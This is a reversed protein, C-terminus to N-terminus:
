GVFTPERIGADVADLEWRGAANLAHIQGSRVAVNLAMPGGPSAALSVGRDFLTDVPPEFGALDTAGDAPVLVLRTTTATPRTMVAVTTPDRWGLRVPHRLGPTPTLEIPRTLGVPRGSGDRAVRFVRLRFGSAEDQAVVLRSGDRSLAAARVAGGRLPWRQLVRDRGPHTVVVRSGEATRDVLWLNGLHDWLPRLVDTGVYASRVDREETRGLVLVRSGQRGVMAFQQSAMDVGLWRAPGWSAAVPKPIRTALVQEEGVVQVVKRGQLGFLDRSATAVAPDLSGFADVDVVAGGEPLEVPNGDVTIQFAEVDPLQGLTWGLQAAALGLDEEDLDLVQESLPVRAVGDPGVPVGVDLKTGEPFYSREVLGARPVPGALLGSVLQTPAQVGRPLYVREPVLVTGSPDLFYLSYTDYRSEFHSRPVVMADPPDEIRWEGGDETVRFPLRGEDWRGLWRGRRDLEFADQIRLEVSSGASSIQRSGYVITRLEPQWVDAAQTTLFEEAVQTSVPTAQLASLFGDVIEDPSAGPRPGSPNFDFPAASSTPTATAGEAVPGSTPLSACGTTALLLLVTAAAARRSLPVSRM